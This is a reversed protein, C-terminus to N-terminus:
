CVGGGSGEILFGFNSFLKIGSGLSFLMLKLASFSYSVMTSTMDKPGSEGVEAKFDFPLGCVKSRVRVKM